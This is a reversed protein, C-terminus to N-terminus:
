FFWHYSVTAIVHILDPWKNPFDLAAILSVAEAVQGRIAKDSPNSLTLMAPVLESRLSAKDQDPLPQVDQDIAM